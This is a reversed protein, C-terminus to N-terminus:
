LLIYKKKMGRRSMGSWIHACNWGHEQDCDSALKREAGVFCGDGAVAM